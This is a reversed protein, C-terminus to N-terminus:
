EDDFQYDEQPDLNIVKTSYERIGIPTHLKIVLEFKFVNLFMIGKIFVKWSMSTRLLEKKLNGRISSIEKINRPINAKIIYKALQSNFKAGTIGEKHLIIRFLSALISDSDGTTIPEEIPQIAHKYESM